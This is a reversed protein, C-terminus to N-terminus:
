QPPLVSEEPEPSASAGTATADPVPRDHGLLVATWLGILFPPVAYWYWETHGLAVATLVVVFLAYAVLVVMGTHRRLGRERYALLLVVTTLGAYWLAVLVERDTTVGLGVIAAPLLLGCAVNLANSNLATSLMATGRGRRALYMAAVANPLSTVAALVLAGVVINPIDFRVGLSQASREMLVSAGVVVLLALAAVTVDLRKSGPILAPHLEMEEERIARTLWRGVRSRAPRTHRRAALVAYPVLVVAVLVLGVSPSLDGFVVLM